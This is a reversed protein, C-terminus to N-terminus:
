GGRQKLRTATLERGDSRGRAYAEALGEAMAARPAGYVTARGHAVPGTLM